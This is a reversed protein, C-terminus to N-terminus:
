APCQAIDRPFLTRIGIILAVGAVLYALATISLLRDIGLTQKWLGGFLTAFGSTIGGCFNLVGVATARASASVVDFSAPFINAIFLGSFLGFGTAALRTVLITDSSGLAHICPASLMLGCIMLWFRATQLRRHLADAIMGGALVGAFTATQLFVTANFAADAQNLEFKDHLFAPLWGYLLWIGFVFVPFVLCLLLFTRARALTALTLRATTSSQEAQPEEVRHLFAFYPLAYLVGVAGLAFFAGRWQGRDAMWGGFWSGAVTGAIQGTMLVSVARSRRAPPYAGATLAVASSMYLSESVGMAARMALLTAGSAVLGTGITVLSWVVLSLVVLLRKSFRDGLYGSVPCGIAYVWLFVTGVLGLQEDSMSLSTKLSPFMAFVAQRDCYNLFYAFWMLAVLVMASTAAQPPVSRPPLPKM